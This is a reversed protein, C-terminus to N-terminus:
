PSVRARRRKMYERQYANYKDRAWRQKSTTGRASKGDSSGSAETGLNTNSGAVSSTPSACRAVRGRRKGGVEKTTCENSAGRNSASNSASTNSAPPESLTVRSPEVQFKAAERQRRAVECRLLPDHVEKCGRCRIASAM